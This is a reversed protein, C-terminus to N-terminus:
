GFSVLFAALMGIVGYGLDANRMSPYNDASEQGVVCCVAHRCTRM